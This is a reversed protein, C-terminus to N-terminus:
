TSFPITDCGDIGSCRFSVRIDSLPPLSTVTATLSYTSQGGNLPSVACPCGNTAVTDFPSVIRIVRVDAYICGNLTCNSCSNSITVKMLDATDNDMEINELTLETCHPNIVQGLMLSPLLGTLLITILKKM